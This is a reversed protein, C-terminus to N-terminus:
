KGYIRKYYKNFRIDELEFTVDFTGLRVTNVATFILSKNDLLSANNTIIEKFLQREQKSYVKKTRYVECKRDLMLLGDSTCALCLDKHLSLWEKISRVISNGKYALVLDGIQIIDYKNNIQKM